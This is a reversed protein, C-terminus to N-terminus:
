AAEPAKRETAKMGRHLRSPPADPTPAFDVSGGGLACLQEAPAPMVGMLMDLVGEM